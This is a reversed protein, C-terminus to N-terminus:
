EKKIDTLHLFEQVLVDATCHLIVMGKGNKDYDRWKEREYKELDAPEPYATSGPHKLIRHQELM